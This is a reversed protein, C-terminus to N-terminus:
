YEGTSQFTTPMSVPTQPLYDAVRIVAVTLVLFALLIAVAALGDNLRACFADVDRAFATLHNKM